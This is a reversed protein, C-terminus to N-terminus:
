ARPGGIRRKVAHYVAVAIVAVVGLLILKFAIKLVWMLIMAGLIVAIIALAANRTM